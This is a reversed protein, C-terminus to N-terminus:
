CHLFFLFDFFDLFNEKVLIIQAIFSFLMKMETLKIKSWFTVIIFSYKTNENSKKKRLELLDIASM